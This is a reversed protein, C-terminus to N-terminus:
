PVDRAEHLLEVGESSTSPSPVSSPRSRGHRVQGGLADVVHEALHRFPHRHAEVLRAREAARLLNKRVLLVHHAGRPRLVHLRQAPRLRERGVTLERHEHRRVRLLNAARDREAQGREPLRERASAVQSLAVGHQEGGGRALHVRSATTLPASSRPVRTGAPLSM